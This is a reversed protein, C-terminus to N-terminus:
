ANLQQCQRPRTKFAAIGHWGTGIRYQHWRGTHRALNARAAATRHRLGLWALPSERTAPRTGALAIAPLKAGANGCDTGNTDNTGNTGPEVLSRRAKAYWAVIQRGAGSVIGVGGTRGALHSQDPKVRHWYFWSARRGCGTPSAALRYFPRGMARGHQHRCPLMSLASDPNRHTAM